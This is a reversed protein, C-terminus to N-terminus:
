YGENRLSKHMMELEAFILVMKVQIPSGDAHTGWRDLGGTYDVDIGKLVCTSIKPLWESENGNFQFTIDFYSPPVLYRGNTGKYEPSGHYKFRNIIRRIEEAEKRSRPTMIFDFMFERLNTGSYLMEYQPNIAIGLLTLGAATLTESDMGVANGLNSALEMAAPGNVSVNYTKMIKDLFGDGSKVEKTLSGTFDALAGISGLADTMSKQNYSNDIKDGWPGPPLYMTINTSRIAERTFDTIRNTKSQNQVVRMQNKINTDITSPTVIAATGAAFGGLVPAGAALGIAGLAVVQAPKGLATQNINRQAPIYAQFQITHPYRKPDGVDLPYRISELNTNINNEQELPALPGVTKKEVSQVKKIKNSNISM